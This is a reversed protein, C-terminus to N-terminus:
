FFVSLAWSQRLVCLCQQKLASVIRKKHANHFHIKKKSLFGGFDNILSKPPNKILVGVCGLESVCVGNKNDLPIEGIGGVVSGGGEVMVVTKLLLLILLLPLLFINSNSNASKVMRIRIVSLPPLNLVCPSVCVCVCVCVCVFIFRFCVCVIVSACLFVSTLQIM